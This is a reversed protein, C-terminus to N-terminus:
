QRQFEPSGLILGAVTAVSPPPAGPTSSALRDQITARTSDSLDGGLLARALLDVSREPSRSMGDPVLRAFDVTTGPLQGAALTLAFNLRAILAGASVWAESRDSYGTPPQCLYLPEGMQVLQRALARGDTTGGAARVASVVYEFPPKVKARYFKPDLFEPSTVVSRVTERLDGGTALFRKAVRDILEKPPDDAVLRGCLKTAIHRATAPHNALIRIMREGEEMGGGPPLTVGLVMKGGADHVRARFVFEGPEERIEFRSGRLEERPRGISWGTLVRALETVDRQTYGGDVGLTHLELLERAYNENLGKPAREKALRAMEPDRGLARGARLARRGASAAPRHADDAASRANDLYFLMAPSKATAMLLDEFRGWMRPRVVDREFSTVFVRDLGKGAFVNFHNMWFDAMVEDLQRESDVARVIRAASLEEIVRRPRNEPPIAARIKEPDADRGGARRVADRLPREFRDFLEVSSMSLTPLQRLKESVATDAISEPHLQREVYRSVGMAQVRELNGPRPGFGLRNLVHLAEERSSVSAPAGSSPPAPSAACSLAAAATAAAGLTSLLHRLKM